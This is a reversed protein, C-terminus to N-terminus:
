AQEQVRQRRWVPQVEEVSKGRIKALTEPNKMTELGIL